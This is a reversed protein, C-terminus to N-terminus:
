KFKRRLATGLATLVFGAYAFAMPDGGTFPLEAPAMPAEVPVVIPQPAPAPAPAQTIPPAPVTVGLIEVGEGTAEGSSTPGSGGGSNGSNCDYVTVTWKDKDNVTTEGYTGTVTATNKIDKNTTIPYAFKVVKEEGVALESFPLEIEGLVDDYLTINTLTFDGTNKITFTYNITVEEDECIRTQDAEKILSIDPKDSGGGGGNNDVDNRFDLNMVDKNDSSLAETFFGASPAIQYWNGTPTAEYVYYTHGLELNTFEYYGTTGSSTASAFAAVGVVSPQRDQYLYIDWALATTGEGQYKHGSISGTGQTTLYNGFDNDTSDPTTTDITVELYEEVPVTKNWGEQQEERVRYDGLPLETFCYEGETDTVIPDMYDEIVGETGVRDLHITWGSMYTDGDSFGGSNDADNFKKGCISGLEVMRNVFTINETYGESLTINQTGNTPSVSEWGDQQTETITYDGPSLNNWCVTGDVSTTQTEVYSCPGELTFEWDPLPNDAEDEKTVCITGPESGQFLWHSLAHPADIGCVEFEWVGETLSILTVDFYVSTSVTDGVCEIVDNPCADGENGAKTWVRVPTVWSEYPEGAGSTDAIFRICDNTLDLDGLEDFKIMPSIGCSGDKGTVYDSITMTQAIAASCTFLLAITLVIAAVTFKRKRM